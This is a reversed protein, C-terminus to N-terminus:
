ISAKIFSPLPESLKATPQSLGPCTPETGESIIGPETSEGMVYVGGTKTVFIFIGPVDFISVDCVIWSLAVTVGEFAVFGAKTQADDLVATAVTLEVPSTVPIEAPFAVIVAVVVSPVLIEAEHETVTLLGTTSTFETESGSDVSIVADSVNCSIAV